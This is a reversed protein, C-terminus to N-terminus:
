PNCANGIAQLDVNYTTIFYNRVINYRKQIIGNADKKSNLIGTFTADYTSLAATHLTTESVTTMALLYQYWDSTATPGNYYPTLMGKSYADLMSTPTSTYNTQETFEEIPSTIGRGIISKIFILNVKTLYALSDAQSMSLVRENGYNICINDYNYWAGVHKTGKTITPPSTSFDYNNYVSDVESCLLIKVPLFAKLFTDSYFRLCSVDFLSLQAKIYPDLAPTMEFGNSWYGSTGLTANKYGTPTWYADKESFNYLFYSHYKDFYSQILTDYDHTGQPLTYGDNITTPTLRGESKKCSAVSIVLVLLSMYKIYRNM